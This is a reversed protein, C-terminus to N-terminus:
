GHPQSGGGGAAEVDPPVDPSIIASTLNQSSQNDCVVKFCSMQMHEM